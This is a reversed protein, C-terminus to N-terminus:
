YNFWGPLKTAVGGYLPIKAIELYRRALRYFSICYLKSAASPM